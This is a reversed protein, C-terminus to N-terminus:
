RYFGISNSRAAEQPADEGAGMHNSAQAQLAGEEGRHSSAKPKLPLMKDILVLLIAGLLRRTADERAGRHNSIKPRLPLMISLFRYFQEKLMRPADEGAGMHNSAKPRLPLMKDILGFLIAGLLRM